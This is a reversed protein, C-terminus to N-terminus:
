KTRGHGKGGHASRRIEGTGGGEQEGQDENMLFLACGVRTDCSAAIIEYQPLYKKLIHHVSKYSFVKSFKL